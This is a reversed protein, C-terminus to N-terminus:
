DTLRKLPKGEGGCVSSMDALAKTNDWAACGSFRNNQNQFEELGEIFRPALLVRHM